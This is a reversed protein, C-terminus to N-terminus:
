KFRRTKNAKKKLVPKGFVDVIGLDFKRLNDGCLLNCTITHSHASQTGTVASDWDADQSIVDGGLTTHSHGSPDTIGTSTPGVDMGYVRTRSNDFQCNNNAKVWWKQNNDSCNGGDTCTGGTSQCSSTSNYRVGLRDWGTNGSQKVQLSTIGTQAGPQVSTVHTHFAVGDTLTHNHSNTESSSCVVRCNAEVRNGFLCDDYNSKRYCKTGYGRDVCEECEQCDQRLM